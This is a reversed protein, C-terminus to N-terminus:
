HFFLIFEILSKDYNQRGFGKGHTNYTLRFIKPCIIDSLLVQQSSSDEYLRKM